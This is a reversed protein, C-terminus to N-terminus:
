TPEPEPDRDTISVSTALDERLREHLSRNSLRKSIERIGAIGDRPIALHCVPDGPTVAPLTTIGLLIGDTPACLVNQEKGHLTSNTAIPQGEDVVEGPGVHFQLVGGVEARLWRTKDIRARYKPQTPRGEVMNLDILVNRIGRVGWEVMTPEIKWVEGAELSITPRGANCASRRLSGKPGKGHVLLECGFARALRAVGPDDLDGRVNPFNTRRVAATHIDIGYHCQSVIAQFVVYALRRALSGETSGPFCRNLDRRDPLYRSHREFGLMNVVPVLILTGAVLSFPANLMIERVIGTGNLEDGHVAATVFVSPGPRAARWVSVPLSVPVNSYTQSVVLEVERHEGLPIIQGGIELREPISTM